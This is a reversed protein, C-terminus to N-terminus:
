LSYLDFIINLILLTISVTNLCQIVKQMYTKQIEYPEKFPFLVKTEDDGESGFILLSM